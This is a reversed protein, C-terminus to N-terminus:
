LQSCFALCYAGFYSELVLKRKSFNVVDGVSFRAFFGLGLVASRGLCLYFAAIFIAFVKKRFSLRCHSATSLAFTVAWSSRGREAARLSDGQGAGAAVMVGFYLPCYEKRSGLLICPASGYFIM